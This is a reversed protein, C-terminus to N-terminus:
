APTGPPRDRARQWAAHVEETSVALLPALAQARAATLHTEARELKSLATTTMGVAKALQPQTFGALNRLDALTRKRPPIRVIRSLPVGLVAAARALTDINPARTGNEWAWITSEGM